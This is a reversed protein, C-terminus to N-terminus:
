EACLVESRLGRWRFREGGIGLEIADGFSEGAVSCGEIGRHHDCGRFVKADHDSANASGMM